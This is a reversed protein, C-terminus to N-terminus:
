FHAPTIYGNCQNAHTLGGEKDRGFKEKGELFPHRGLFNSVCAIIIGLM